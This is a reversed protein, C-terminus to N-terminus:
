RSCGSSPQVVATVGGIVLATQVQSSSFFGPEFLWRMTSLAGRDSSPSPVPSIEGEDEGVVVLVRGHIRIVDVHHGYLKSLM